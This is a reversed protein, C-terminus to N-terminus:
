DSEPELVGYGGEKRVYVVNLDGTEENEFLYFNHGLLDMQAIADEVSMPKVPFTKTRVLRFNEE